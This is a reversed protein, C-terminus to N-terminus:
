CVRICYVNVSSDGRRQQWVTYYCDSTICFCFSMLGPLFLLTYFLSIWHWRCMWMSTASLSLQEQEGRKTLCVCLARMCVSVCVCVCLFLSLYARVEYNRYQNSDLLREASLTSKVVFLTNQWERTALTWVLSSTKLDAKVIVRSIVWDRSAKSVHSCKRNWLLLDAPRRERRVDRIEYSQWETIWVFLSQTSGQSPNQISEYRVNSQSM